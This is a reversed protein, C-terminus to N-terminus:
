EPNNTLERMVDYFSYMGPTRFIGGRCRIEFWTEAGGRYRVTMTLAKQRWPWPPLKRFWSRGGRAANKKRAEPARSLKARRWEYTTSGFTHEGFSHETKPTPM